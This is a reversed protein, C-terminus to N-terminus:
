PTRDPKERDDFVEGYQTLACTPCLGHSFNAESHAAIYAELQRWNAEGEYVRKCFMCVTILGRLVKIERAQSATRWVLVSLLLLVGIRVLMNAIGTVSTAAPDLVRELYLRGIPLVVSLGHSVLRADYWAAFVVPLVFLIPFMLGPGTLYDLVLIAAGLVIHGAPNKVQRGLM